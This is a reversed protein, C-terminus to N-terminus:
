AVGNGSRLAQRFKPWIDPCMNRSAAEVVILSEVSSRYGAEMTLAILQDVMSQDAPATRGIRCVWKGLDIVVSRDDYYVGQNDLDSVYDWKDAEAPAALTVAAIGAALVASASRKV